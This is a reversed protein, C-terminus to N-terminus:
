NDGEMDDDVNDDHAEEPEEPEEPEVKEPEPDTQDMKEYKQTMDKVAQEMKQGVKEAATQAQNVTPSSNGELMKEMFATTSQRM